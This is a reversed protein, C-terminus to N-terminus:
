CTRKQLRGILLDLLLYLFMRCVVRFPTLALNIPHLRLLLCFALPPLMVGATLLAAYRLKAQLPFNVRGAALLIVLTLFGISALTLLLGEMFECVYSLRIRTQWIVEQQPSLHGSSLPFFSQTVWYIGSYLTALAPLLFLLVKAAKRARNSWTLRGDTGYLIGELDIEYIAALKMLTDIDPRTRGSEYSSLAQRTVNLQGAVQEQTLGRQLRLQRLNEHITM